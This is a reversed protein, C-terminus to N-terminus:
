KKKAKYVLYATSIVNISHTVKTLLQLHRTRQRVDSGSIPSATTAIRMISHTRDMRYGLLGFSIKAFFEQVRKGMQHFIVTMAVFRQLSAIRTEYLEQSFHQSRALMFDVDRKSKGANYKRLIEGFYKERSVEIQIIGREDRNSPPLKVMQDLYSTKLLDIFQDYDLQGSREHDVSSFIGRAEEESFAVTARRIFEDEDLFGKGDLDFAQFLKRAKDSWKRERIASAIVDEVSVEDRLKHNSALIQPGEDFNMYAGILAAASRRKVRRPRISSDITTSLNHLSTSLSASTSRALSWMISLPSILRSFVTPTPELVSLTQATREEKVDAEILIRECLFLPRQRKLFIGKKSLALKFPNHGITVSECTGGLSQISSAQNVSLCVAAEATSLASLRGDPRGCIVLSGRVVRHTHRHVFHDSPNGSLVNLGAISYSCAFIQFYVPVTTISPYESPMLFPLYVFKKSQESISRSITSGV